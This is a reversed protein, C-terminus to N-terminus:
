RLFLREKGSEQVEWHLHQIQGCPSDKAETGIAVVEKEMHKELEYYMKLDQSCLAM